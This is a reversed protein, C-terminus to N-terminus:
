PSTNNAMLQFACQSTGSSNMFPQLRNQLDVMQFYAPSATSFLVASRIKRSLQRFVWNCLLIYRFLFQARINLHIASIWMNAPSGLLKLKVPVLKTQALGCFRGPRLLRCPEESQYRVNTLGYSPQMRKSLIGHKKTGSFRGHSSDSHVKLLVSRKLLGIFLLVTYINQYQSMNNEM